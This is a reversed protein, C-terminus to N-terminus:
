VDAAIIDALVDDGGQASFEAFLHKRCGDRVNFTVAAVPQNRYQGMVDVGDAVEGKGEGWQRNRQGHGQAAHAIQSHQRPRHKHHHQHGNSDTRHDLVDGAAVAEVTKGFGTFGFVFQLLMVVCNGFAGLFQTDVAGTPLPHKDGANLARRLFDAVNLNARDVGKDDGFAEARHQKEHDDAQRQGHLRKPGAAVGLDDATKDQHQQVHFARQFMQDAGQRDDTTRLDGEPANGVQGFLEVRGLRVQQEVCLVGRVLGEVAQLQHVHAVAERGHVAAGREAEARHVQRDLM